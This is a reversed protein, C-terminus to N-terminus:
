SMKICDDFFCCDVRPCTGGSRGYCPENGETRQIRHILDTKRLRGPKIGLEKAKSRVEKMKM